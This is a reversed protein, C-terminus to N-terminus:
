EFSVTVGYLVFICFMKGSDTAMYNECLVKNPITVGTEETTMEETPEETPPSTIEYALLHLILSYSCAYIAKSAFNKVIQLKLRTYKNRVRTMCSIAVSYQQYCQHHVEVPLFGKEKDLIIMFGVVSKTPNLPVNQKQM